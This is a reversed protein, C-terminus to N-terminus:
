PFPIASLTSPTQPPLRCHRLQLLQLLPHRRKLLRPQLLPLSLKWHWHRHYHPRIM